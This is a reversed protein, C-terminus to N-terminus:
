YSKESIFSSNCKNNTPFILELDDDQNGGRRTRAVLALHPAGADQVQRPFTRLERSVRVRAAAAAGAGGAQFYLSM